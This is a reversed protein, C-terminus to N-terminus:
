FPVFANQKKALIERDSELRVQNNDVVYCPPNESSKSYDNLAALGLSSDIHDYQVHFVSDERTSLLDLFGEISHDENRVQLREKASLQIGGKAISDPTFGPLYEKKNNRPKLGGLFRLSGGVDPKSKELEFLKYSFDSILDAKLFEDSGIDM